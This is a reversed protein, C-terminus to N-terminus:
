RKQAQGFPRRPTDLFGVGTKRDQDLLVPRDPLCVNAIEEM